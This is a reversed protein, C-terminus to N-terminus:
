PYVELSYVIPPACVSVAWDFPIPGFSVRGFGPGAAFSLVPGYYTCDPYTATFAYWQAPWNSLGNCGIAIVFPIGYFDIPDTVYLYESPSVSGCVGTYFYAPVVLGDLDICSNYVSGTLVFYLVPPVSLQAACGLIQSKWGHSNGGVGIAQPASACCIPAITGSQFPPRPDTSLAGNAWQDLTGCLGGKSVGKPIQGNYYPHYHYQEGLDPELREWRDYIKSTFLNEIGGLNDTDDCFYWVVPVVEASDRFFRM